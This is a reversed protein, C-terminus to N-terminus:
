VRNSKGRGHAMSLRSTDSNSLSNGLGVGYRANRYNYFFIFIFLRRNELYFTKEVVDKHHMKWVHVVIMVDVEDTYSTRFEIKKFFRKCRAFLRPKKANNM